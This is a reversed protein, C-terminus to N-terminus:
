IHNTDEGRAGVLDRGESGEGVLVLGRAVPSYFHTRHLLM